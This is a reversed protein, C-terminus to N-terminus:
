ARAVKCGPSLFETAVPYSAPKIGFSTQINYLDREKGSIYGKKGQKGGWLGTVASVSSINRKGWSIIKM